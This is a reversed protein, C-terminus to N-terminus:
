VDRPEKKALDAVTHPIAAFDFLETPMLSLKGDDFLSAALPILMQMRDRPLPVLYTKGEVEVFLAARMHHVSTTGASM